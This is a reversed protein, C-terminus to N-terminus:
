CRPILAARVEQVLDLREAVFALTLTVLVVLAELVEVRSPM